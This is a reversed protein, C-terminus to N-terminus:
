GLAKLWDPVPTSGRMFTAVGQAIPDSPHVHFCIARTFAIHHTLRYCEARCYVPEGPTAAALYDIRLDLTAIMEFDPLKATVATASTTDILSTIVGGHLAGTTPNGVLDERWAIKLVSEQGDTGVYQLGLARAHPLDVFLQSMVMLVQPNVAAPTM